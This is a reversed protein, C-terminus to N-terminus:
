IRFEDSVSRELIIICGRFVPRSDLLVSLVHFEGQISRLHHVLCLLGTQLKRNGACAFSLFCSDTIRAEPSHVKLCIRGIRETHPYFSWSFKISFYVSLELLIISSCNRLFHLQFARQLRVGPSQQSGSDLCISRTLFTTKCQKGRIVAAHQDIHDWEHRIGPFTALITQARVKGLKKM